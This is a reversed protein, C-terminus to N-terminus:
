GPYLVNGRREFHTYPPPEKASKALIERITNQSPENIETREEKIGRDALLWTKYDRCDGTEFPFLWGRIGSALLGVAFPRLSYRCLVFLGSAFRGENLAPTFLDFLIDQASTMIYFAAGTKLTMTGIERIVCQRCCAPVNTVGSHLLQELYHCDHNSRGSMCPPSMPKLCFGAGVISRADALGQGSGEISISTMNSSFDLTGSDRVARATKVPHPVAVRRVFQWGYERLLSQLCFAWM